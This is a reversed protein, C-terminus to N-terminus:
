VRKRRSNSVGVLGILGALLALSSTPEPVVHVAARPGVEFGGDQFAVVLDGSTFDGDGDWDGEAWGSNGVVSDEYEGAGFVAVLDGSNFEGDLNADGFWTRKLTTVWFHVDASDVLLDNNIDFYPDHRRAQAEAQLADVDRDALLGDLDFDGSQRLAVRGSGMETAYVEVVSGNAFTGTILRGTKQLGVGFVNILASESAILGAMPDSSFSGGRINVISGGSAIVAPKIVEDDSGRDDFGRILGDNIELISFDGAIIGAGDEGLIEGGRLTVRSNGSTMLGSNDGTLNGGRMEFTANGSVSTGHWDGSTVQSGPELVVFSNETAGVAPGECWLNAGRIQVISADLASVGSTESRIVGGLLDLRANGYLGIGRGDPSEVTGGTMIVRSEGRAVIGTHDRNILTGGSIELKSAGDLDIVALGVTTELNGGSIQTTVRDYANICNSFDCDFTGGTVQVHATDRADILGSDIDEYFDNGDVLGEQFEAVASGSLQWQGGLTGGLLRIGSEGSVSSSLDDGVTAVQGDARVELIAPGQAGNRVDVSMDQLTADTVVTDQDIVVREARAYLAINVLLVATCINIFRM